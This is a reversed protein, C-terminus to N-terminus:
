DEGFTPFQRHREPIDRKAMVLGRIAASEDGEDLSHFYQQTFSLPYRETTADLQSSPEQTVNKAQGGHVTDAM